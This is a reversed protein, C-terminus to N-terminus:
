FFNVFTPSINLPSMKNSEIMIAGNDKEFAEFKSTLDDDKLSDLYFFRRALPSKLSRTKNPARGGKKKYTERKHRMYFM